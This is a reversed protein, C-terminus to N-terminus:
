YRSVGPIGPDWRRRTPLGPRPSGRHGQRGCHAAPSESVLGGVARRGPHRRSDPRARDDDPLMQIEQVPRVSAALRHPESFDDTTHADADLMLLRYGPMSRWGPQGRAARRKIGASACCVGITRTFISPEGNATRSAGASCDLMPLQSLWHADGPCRCMRTVSRGAAHGRCAALGLQSPKAIWEIKLWRGNRLSRMTRNARSACCCSLRRWRRSFGM